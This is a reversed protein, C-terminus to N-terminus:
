FILEIFRVFDGYIRIGNHKAINKMKLSASGGAAQGRETTERLATMIFAMIVKVMYYVDKLGYISPEGEQRERM